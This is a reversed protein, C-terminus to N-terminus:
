AAAQQAELPNGAERRFGMREEVVMLLASRPSVLFICASKDGIM